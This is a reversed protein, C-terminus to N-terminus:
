LPLQPRLQKENRVFGVQQVTFSGWWLLSKVKFDGRESQGERLQHEEGPVLSSPGRPGNDGAM